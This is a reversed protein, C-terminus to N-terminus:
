RALDITLSKRNKIENNDTMTALAECLLARWVPDVMGSTVLITYFIFLEIRRIVSTLLVLDGWGEGQRHPSRAPARVALPLTVRAGYFQKNKCWQGTEFYSM